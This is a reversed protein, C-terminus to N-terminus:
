ITYGFQGIVLGSGAFYGAVKNHKEVRDHKTLKEFNVPFTASAINGLKDFTKMHNDIEACGAIESLKEWPKKGVQHSLLFDPKEWNLQKMTEKFLDRHGKLMVASIQAMRMQGHFRGLKDFHYYCKDAHIPLTATNFLDFGSVGDRSEGLVVAGGADGISLGGIYNKVEDQNMGQKLLELVAYTVNSAVEATVILAHKIATTEIFKTAIKVGEIFGFCANSVDFSHQPNIGLKHAITHATAPEPRDREIGCFIVMDIGDYSIGADAIAKEAAPIALDSPKSESSSLRREHIGMDKSMWEKSIGYNQESKFEEFLDISKVKQNPLFSKASLIQVKKM